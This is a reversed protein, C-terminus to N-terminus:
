KHGSVQQFITLINKLRAKKQKDGKKSPSFASDTVPSDQDDPAESERDVSEGRSRVRTIMKRSPTELDKPETKVEGLNKKPRGKPRPEKQPQEEKDSGADTGTEERRGVANPGDGEENSVERQHRSKIESLSTEDDDDEDENDSPEVKAEGHTAPSASTTQAAKRKDESSMSRPAIQVDADDKKPTVVQEGDLPTEQPEEKIPKSSAEDPSLFL